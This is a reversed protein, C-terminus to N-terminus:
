FDSMISDYIDESAKKAIRLFSERKHIDTYQAGGEVNFDEQVDIDENRWLIEGTERKRLIISLRIRSRYELAKDERTFSIATLDVYEITGEIIADASDKNYVAVQQNKNFVSVLSNTFIYELGAEYTKNKFYPIAVTKIGYTNSKGVTFRYKPCGIIAIFFILYILFFKKRM